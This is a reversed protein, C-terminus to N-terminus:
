SCFEFFIKEDKYKDFYLLNYPENWWYPSGEIHGKLFGLVFEVLGNFLRM